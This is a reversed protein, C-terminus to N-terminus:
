MSSRLVFAWILVGLLAVLVIMLTFFMVISLISALVARITSIGHLQRLGIIEIILGWIGTVLGWFPSPIWGLLLIPTSGYAVAKFTEGVKKKGRM